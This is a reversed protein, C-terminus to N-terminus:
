NSMKHRRPHWNDREVCRESAGGSKLSPSSVDSLEPQIDEKSVHLMVTNMYIICVMTGLRLELAHKKSTSGICAKGQIKLL